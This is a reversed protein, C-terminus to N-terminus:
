VAGAVAQKEALQRIFVFNVQEVQDVWRDLLQLEESSRDGEKVVSGVRLEAGAGDLVMLMQHVRNLGFACFVGVDVNLHSEWAKLHLQDPPRVQETRDSVSAVACFKPSSSSLASSEDVM